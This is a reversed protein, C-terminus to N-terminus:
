DIDQHPCGYCLQSPTTTVQWCRTLDRTLCIRPCCSGLAVLACGQPPIVRANGCIDTVYVTPGACDINQFTVSIGTTNAPVSVCVPGGPTKVCFTIPCPMTNNFTICCPAPIDDQAMAPTAIVGISLTFMVAFMLFFGRRTM